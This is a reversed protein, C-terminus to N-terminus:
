LDDTFISMISPHPKNQPPCKSTSTSTRPNTPNAPNTSNERKERNQKRKKSERHGCGTIREQEIVTWWKKFDERVSNYWYPNREVLVCSVEPLRWYITQVWEWGNAEMTDITTKEWKEWLRKSVSWASYEYRPMPENPHNFMLFAGKPYGEETSTWSGDQEFEEFSEYEKFRCELFDCEDLRCVEMQLQMQIWYEKKPIGTIERNVINKIELMRGYRPSAPDVIIGDPSAGMHLDEQHRICGFDEVTTNYKSEYYLVSLPEYKQGWHFPSELSTRQFKTVDLPQCKGYIYSNQQAPTDLLKWASSATILNHRFMYWEPTRQDPQPQNRIWTLRTTISAVELPSLSPEYTEISRLPYQGGIFTYLIVDIEEYLTDYSFVDVIEEHHETIHQYIATKFHEIYKYEKFLHANQQICADIISCLDEHYDDPDGNETQTETDETETCTFEESSDGLTREHIYEHIETLSYANLIEKVSDPIM